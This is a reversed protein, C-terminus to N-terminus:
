SDGGEGWMYWGGEERAVGKGEQLSVLPLGGLLSLLHGGGHLQGVSRKLTLTPKKIYLTIANARKTIAKSCNITAHPTSRKLLTFTQNQFKMSNVNNVDYLM